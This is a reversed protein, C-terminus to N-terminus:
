SSKMLAKLACTSASCGGSFRSAKNPANQDAETELDASTLFSQFCSETLSISKSPALGSSSAGSALAAANPASHDIAPSSSKSLSLTQSFSTARAAKTVTAVASWLTSTRLVAIFARALKAAAGESLSVIHSSTHSVSSSFSCFFSSARLAASAAALARAKSRSSSGSAASGELRFIAPAGSRKSASDKQIPMSRQTRGGTSCPSTRGSSASISSCPASSVCGTSTRIDASRANTSRDHSSPM